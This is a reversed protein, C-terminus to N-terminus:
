FERDYFLTTHLSEVLTLSEVIDTPIKVPHGDDGLMFADESEDYFILYQGGSHARRIEIKDEQEFFKWTREYLRSM